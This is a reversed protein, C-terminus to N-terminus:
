SLSAPSRNPQWSRYRFVTRVASVGDKWGIKKGDAKSRPEYVSPVEVFRAGTRALKATIEIEIEVRDSSLDLGLLTSRLVAKHATEADTLRIGYVLNTLRTILKNAAVRVPPLGAASEVFRSGYVADAEESILPPLLATINLPDLELDADQVVVIDGTAVEVGRRVAAGKGRNIEFQEVRPRTPHERAVSATGDNSGDDIVIIESDLDLLALRDLVRGLTGAENYVPVVISIKMRTAM